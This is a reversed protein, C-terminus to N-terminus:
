LNRYIKEKFYILIYIGIQIKNIIDFDKNELYQLFFM